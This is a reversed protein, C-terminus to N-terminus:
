GEGAPVKVAVLEGRGIPVVLGSLKPHGLAAARFGELDDPHSLLNDAIFLGGTRLARVIAPVFAEYVEKEADLFVLDADGALRALGTLGDEHRLEVVDRVGAEAFTAEAREVKAPDVEHTVVRGGNRRAAAALWLTSYGGSTGIEVITRAGTALALTCLLEGVERTVARLRESRPTGDLRDEADRAELARMVVRIEPPVVDM